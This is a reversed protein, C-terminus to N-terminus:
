LKRVVLIGLSFTLASSAFLLCFLGFEPSIFDQLRWIRFGMMMSVSMAAILSTLILLTTRFWTSVRHWRHVLMYCPLFLLVYPPLTWALFKFWESGVGEDYVVSLYSMYALIGAFYSTIAVITYFLWKKM